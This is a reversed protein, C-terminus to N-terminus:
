AGQESHLAAPRRATLYKGLKMYHVIDIKSPCVYACSGCEICDGLGWLAAQELKNVRVYKALYSPVLRMPCTKVCHGCNICHGRQSFERSADFAVVAGASKGVSVDLDSQSQGTMPGGLIVKHLREAEVECSDLLWRLSTGVPVLVNKPSRVAPGSVTVVRRCLPFGNVVADFIAHATAVNIVVCGIDAPSCGSPVQKKAITQTLMRESGQPYKAKLRAVAIDKYKPDKMSGTLKAVVQQNTTEVAIVTRGAGVIKKVILTGTLIEETNELMLRRDATVYPEDEVGNIILTHIPCHSPPSLLVQAPIADRGMDVVGASAIMQVLEGPAAERWSKEMAALVVAERRGDNEIEIAPGRKGDPCSYRGIRLVKGSVSAHVASSFFGAPEGIMQGVLVHDGNKVIPVAPAGAHQALHIVVKPPQPLLAIPLDATREKDAPPHIGGHFSTRGFL